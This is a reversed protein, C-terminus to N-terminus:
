MVGEYTDEAIKIKGTVAESIISKKYEQLKTIQQEINNITSNIKTTKFDLYDAIKKQEEIEPLVVQMNSIFEWNARPMKSGYTSSNVIEIFGPSLLLNLLYRSEYSKSKFVLLEGTCQGDFEAIFGKSLYPRLKSFLVDGSFFLDAQKKMEEDNCDGINPLLRGTKSEINELGIYKLSSDSSKSNRISVTFKLKKISWGEPIEGLWDVGSDKMSAHKDLGKTVAENIIAQRYEKLKEILIQKDNILKDINAVTYDLYAIIKTLVQKKPLSIYFNNIMLSSINPQASGFSELQIYNEFARIQTYYFLYKSVKSRMIGVRQNIYADAVNGKVYCTKGVTAGSMAILIDNEVIKYNELIEKNMTVKKAKDINMGINTIDGIRIVFYKGDNSLSEGDFAYGNIFRACKKIKIVKWDEPIEGIWPIGSDKYKEYKKM